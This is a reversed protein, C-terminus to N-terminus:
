IDPKDPWAPSQATLDVTQLARCYAQWAKAKATEEETADGLQLSVLLPTMIKSAEDNRFVQEAENWARVQAQTPKPNLFAELKKGTLPVMDAGCGLDLQEADYAYVQGDDPNTFYSYAPKYESM